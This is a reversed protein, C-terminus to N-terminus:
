SINVWELIVTGTAKLGADSGAWGDAVNLYVLHSGTTTIVLPANTVGVASATGTTNALTQGTIINEFAATGGLVAVAGSAITTGIGVDPTDADITAGTSSLSVEMYAARVLTAGAPLTYLLKGVAEDAAGAIASIALDTFTLTTVHQQGAKSESATVSTNATGDGTSRTMNAVGGALTITPISVSQPFAALAVALLIASLRNLM